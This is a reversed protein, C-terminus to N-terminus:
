TTSYQGFTLWAQTLNILGCLAKCEHFTRIHPCAIYKNFKLYIILMVDGKNM